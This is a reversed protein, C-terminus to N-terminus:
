WIESKHVISKYKKSIQVISLFGFFHGLPHVWLFFNNESGNRPSILCRIFELLVITDVVEQCFHSSPHIQPFKVLFFLIISSQSTLQAKYPFHSIPHVKYLFQALLYLPRTFNSLKCLISSKIIELLFNFLKSRPHFTISSRSFTSSMPHIWLLHFKNSCWQPFTFCTIKTAQFSWIHGFSFFQTHFPSCFLIILKFKFIHFFTHYM